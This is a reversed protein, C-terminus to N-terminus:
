YGATKWVTIGSSLEMNESKVDNQLLHVVFRNDFQVVEEAL